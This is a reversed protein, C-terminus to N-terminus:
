EYEGTPALVAEGQMRFTQMLSRDTGTVEEKEEKRKWTLLHCGAQEM